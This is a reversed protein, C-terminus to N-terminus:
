RRSLHQRLARAAARCQEETLHRGFEVQRGHSRVAVVDRGDRPSRQLAVQAWYPNFEHRSVRGTVRREFVLKDGVISISESDAAHREVARFALYLLVIEAGAFPLVPWAGLLALPLSVALSVVVTAAFVCARGTSSLSNNRRAVLLLSRQEGAHALEM